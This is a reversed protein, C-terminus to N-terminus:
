PFITNTNGQKDVTVVETGIIYTGSPDEIKTLTDSANLFDEASQGKKLKEKAQDANLLVVANPVQQKVSSVVTKHTPTSQKTSALDFIVQERINTPQKILMKQATKVDVGLNKAVAAVQKEYAGAKGSAIDAEIEGKLILTDIADKTAKPKDYAKSTSGIIKSILSGDKLSGKFDDAGLVAQSAAILSNYAADKNMGKIDVIDRYKEIREKRIQEPTKEDITETIIDDGGLNAARKAAMEEKKRLAEAAAKEAKIEDTDFPLYKELFGPTLAEAAFKASGVVAGPVSKIVAQGPDTIASYGALAATKPNEKIARGSVQAALKPNKLLEKLTYNAPVYNFSTNGANISGTSRGGLKPTLFNSTPRNKAYFNKLRNGVNALIGGGVKVKKFPNITQLPKNKFNTLTQGGSKKIVDFLSLQEAHMRRGGQMPFAPNGVLLAQNGMAGGNRKPERIGNMVGEKIPGGYRFMPRNLTRM